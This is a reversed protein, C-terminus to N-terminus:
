RSIAAVEPAAAYQHQKVRDQQVGGDPQRLVGLLDDRHGHGIIEPGTQCQKERYGYEAPACLRPRSPIPEATATAPTASVSPASLEKGSAVTDALDSRATPKAIAAATAQPKYEM